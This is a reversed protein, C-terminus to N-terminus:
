WSWEVEALTVICHQVYKQTFVDFDNYVLDGVRIGNRIAQVACTWVTVWDAM